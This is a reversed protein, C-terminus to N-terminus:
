SIGTTAKKKQYYMGRLFDKYSHKQYKLIKQSEATDFCETLYPRSTFDSDKPIKRGAIRFLNSVFDKYQMCFEKGGGILLIRKIAEKVKVANILATIVDKVHVFQFHANYPIDLLNRLIPFKTPLVAGIRLVCWNLSSLKIMKECELKHKTYEIYRLLKIKNTKKYLNYFYVSASSPFIIKINESNEKVAEILNKTGEINTKCAESHNKQCIEPSAFALHIVARCYKIAIEIDEKKRIDGYYVKIRKIKRNRREIRRNKESPLVFCKVCYGQKLLESILFKGINGFAGTVLIQM